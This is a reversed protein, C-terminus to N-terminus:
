DLCLPCGHADYVDLRQLAEMVVERIVTDREWEGMHPQKLPALLEMLAAVIKDKDKDDM